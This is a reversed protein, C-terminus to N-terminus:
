SVGVKLLSNLDDDPHLSNVNIDPLDNNWKTQANVKRTKDEWASVPYLEPKGKKWSPKNQEYSEESFPLEEGTTYGMRNQEKLYDAYASYLHGEERGSRGHDPNFPPSIEMENQKSWGFRSTENSVDNTDSELATFTPLVSSLSVVTSERLSSSLLDKKSNNGKSLSKVRTRFCM